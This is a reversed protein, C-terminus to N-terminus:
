FVQSINDWTSPDVKVKKCTTVYDVSIIACTDDLDSQINTKDYLIKWGFQCYWKNKKSTYKHM